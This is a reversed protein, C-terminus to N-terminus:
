ETMATLNDLAIVAVLKGEKKAWVYFGGRLLSPLVEFSRSGCTLRLDDGSIIFPEWYEPKERTKNKIVNVIQQSTHIEVSDFVDWDMGGSKGLAIYFMEPYLKGGLSSVYQGTFM